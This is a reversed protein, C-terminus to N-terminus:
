AEGGMTFYFTAGKEVEGEAWMRGGHRRIVRQATALGIGTGPFESAKHLRQFAGFLGGAYAMDFGVGNDRVYFVDESHGDQRGFEIRAHPRPGTFKVANDLLNTLAIELLQADGSVRLGSEVVFEMERKPATEHLRGAIATALRTLDVPERGMEARTVQSLRLMEDILTGLRRTEARVRELYERARADLQEGCDELLAASWGDIGRLPARLDHSVSYAFAAMEKNAAELQETRERVRQELSANLRLIEQEARKQETIDESFLVMGGVSGDAEQWPQTEWRVWQERGDARRFPEGPNKELVGEMCRRHAARCGEPIEPFIEYHSRGVVDASNLGHIECFRRSVALYRMERDFTAIAAPASEMYRRLDRESKRLADGARRRETIDTVYAVFLRGSPNEVSGLGVEVPFESGDKRRAAIEMGPGMPRATPASGYEERRARHREHAAEPMLTEVPQGILEERGYGFMRETQANVMAIAGGSDVAVIAQSSAELLARTAEESRALAERQAQMARRAEERGRIDSEIAAGAMGLLLLLSGTGIGLMWRMRSGQAEAGAASRALQARDEAEAAHLAARIQEMQRTGEGSAAFGAEATGGSRRKAIGRALRELRAAILSDLAEMRSRQAANDATLRRQEERMGPGAGLAARYQALYQEGGSLLYGRAATEADELTSFLAETANLLENTHALWRRGDRDRQFDSYLLRSL